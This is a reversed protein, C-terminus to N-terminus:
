FSPSGTKSHRPPEMVRKEIVVVSGYFHMSHATLTFDDPAFGAERTHWANLQDILRKAYEMYSGPKCLGGGYEARYSTHTDECLYVGDDSIEDFLEEFTAIQQAMTHGGDDILVDISPLARRLSRLFERDSQDGIHIEIGEEELSKCAPNIDVGYIRARPGFYDKWMQLSGGHSVGFELVNVDRGRFRGFHREYIEFYHHWKHILRGTNNRFYQELTDM